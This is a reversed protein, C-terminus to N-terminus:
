LSGPDCVLASNKPSTHEVLLPRLTRDSEEDRLAQTFDQQTREQLRKKAASIPLDLVLRTFAAWGCARSQENCVGIGIEKVPIGFIESDIRYSLLGREKKFPTTQKYLRDITKALAKSPQCKEFGMLTKKDITIPQYATQAEAQGVIAFSLVLIMLPRKKM